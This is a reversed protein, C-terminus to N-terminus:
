QSAPPPPTFKVRQPLAALALLAVVPTILVALVLWSFTASRKIGGVYGAVFVGVIYSVTLLYGIFLALLETM